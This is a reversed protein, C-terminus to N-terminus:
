AATECRDDQNRQGCLLARPVCPERIGVRPEVRQNHCIPQTRPREIHRGSAAQLAPLRRFYLQRSLSDLRRLHRPRPSLTARRPPHVPRELPQHRQPRPTRLISSPTTLNHFMTNSKPLHAGIGNPYLRFVEKMYSDLKVMRQMARTTIKGDNESMADTIEERLPDHYEPTAALAYMITTASATTTHIAAFILGLQQEALYEVSLGGQEASHNILWQIMDDPKQWDPDNKEAEMRERVLPELRRVARKEVNRLQQIAPLRPVLFPKLWSRIPKIEFVAAFLLLTYNKACDLYEPDQYLDEGVFARGSVKAIIDLLKSNIAVETWESYSPLHERMTTEVEAGIKANIRAVKEDSDTM